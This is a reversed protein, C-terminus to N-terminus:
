CRRRRRALLGCAGTLLLLARSPEPVVVTVITGNTTFNSIDWAYGSGSIDPLDFGLNDDGNGLLFGGYSAASFRSDFNVTSLNTWDLLNFIDMGAPVYGSATVSLNGNFNLTGGSLGDFSLLDGSGGPNIGLIVSSGSQFDFNGSGSVPTFTLTGYNGQATGDGAHVLAGSVFSVNTGRVVGTGLMTGGSQVTVDGSGTQGSGASGVQLSGGSVTTTGTYTNAGSLVWTGADQKVVNVVPTETGTNDAIVGQITNAGTNSGGLTLTRATSGPDTGTGSSVPNNFTANTFTLAGSGNNLV